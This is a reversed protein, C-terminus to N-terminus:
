GMIEVPIWSLQKENEFRCRGVEYLFVCISDVPGNETEPGATLHVMCQTRMDIGVDDGLQRLDAPAYTPFTVTFRLGGDDSKRRMVNLLKTHLAALQITYIVNQNTVSILDDWAPTLPTSATLEFKEEVAGISPSVSTRASSRGKAKAERRTIQRPPHSACRGGDQVGATIFVM